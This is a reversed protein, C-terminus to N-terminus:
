LLRCIAAWPRHNAMNSKWIPHNYLTPFDNFDDCISDFYQAYLIEEQDDDKGHYDEKRTTVTLMAHFRTAQM